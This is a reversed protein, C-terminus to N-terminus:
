LSSFSTFGVYWNEFIDFLNNRGAVACIFYIIASITVWIYRPVMKPYRGLVQFGLAASYTGPINNAIVGLAVLVACFKGFGGLGDYGAVILAGSSIDYADSWTPQTAIGSALGVGLMYVFSFALSLGVMSATFAKWRPTSQPYYVFYDAASPAWAVPGSLCLSFFSLRNAAVTVSDGVATVSTDFKSAASGVLVFLAVVQPLWAWREYFHFVRIGCVAVLWTIVAVIVIGVIISLTNSSVASLIQGGIICDIMGYGKKSFPLNTSTM